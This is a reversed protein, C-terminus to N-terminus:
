ISGTCIERRRLCCRTARRRGGTNSRRWGDWAPRRRGLAAAPPVLSQIKESDLLVRREGSAVDLVWIDTKAERGQGSRQTYSLLKGDPSWQLGPTLSGSLSPGPGYIREVTLAKRQALAPAAMTAVLAVLLAIAAFRCHNRVKM